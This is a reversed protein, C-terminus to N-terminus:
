TNVFYILNTDFSLFFDFSENLTLMVSFNVSPYLIGKYVATQVEMANDKLLERRYVFSLCTGKGFTIM